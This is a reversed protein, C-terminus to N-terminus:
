WLAWAIMALGILIPPLTGFALLFGPSRAAPGPNRIMTILGCYAAVLVGGSATLVGVVLFWEKPTASATFVIAIYGVIVVVPSLLCGWFEAQGSTPEDGGPQKALGM